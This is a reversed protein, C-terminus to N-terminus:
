KYAEKRHRIKQIEITNEENLLLYIVRYDGVRLRYSKNSGVLKRSATPLPNEALEQIASVIRPIQKKDIRRLDKEASKKFLIKYSGM